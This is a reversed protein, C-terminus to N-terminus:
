PGRGAGADAAHARVGKPRGTTGSTYIMTGPPERARPQCRRFSERAM